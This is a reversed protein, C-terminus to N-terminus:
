AQPLKVTLTTGDAENSAISIDGGHAVTVLYAYTTGLGSGGKGEKTSNFKEFFAEVRDPPVPAGGNQISVVALGNEGSLTVSVARKGEDPLEIVHEIANKILNQFVGTLLDADAAVTGGALTGQLQISVLAGYVTEQDAIAQKLLPELDVERKDLAFRGTEFDQLLKISDILRSTALAGEHIKKIWDSRDDDPDGTDFQLLMDSYGLIPSIKNKLEHRLFAEHERKIRAIEEVNERLAEQLIHIFLHTKVRALLEPANFPKTVYDVAGLEFGQVIDETETKATLFVVPIDATEPDSKLRKCAEFGDMEPMMIDLLILDPRVKQVLELAQIGNQAVNIQYEQERLITGLVQINKPVDEVILIRLQKNDINVIYSSQFDDM